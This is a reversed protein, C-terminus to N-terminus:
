GGSARSVIAAGSGSSTRLARKHRRNHLQKKAKSFQHLVVQKAKGIDKGFGHKAHGKKGDEDKAPKGADDDDDDDNNGDGGRCGHRDRDGVNPTDEGFASM